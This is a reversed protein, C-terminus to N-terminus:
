GLLRDHILVGVGVPVLYILVSEPNVVLSALAPGVCYGSISWGIGFIVAGIIMRQDFVIKITPLFFEEDFLPRKRLRINLQYFATGVTVAVIFLILLTFDLHEGAINLFNNIVVPNATGSIGLGFGFLCGSTLAIILQAM